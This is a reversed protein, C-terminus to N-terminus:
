NPISSPISSPVIITTPIPGTTISASQSCASNIQIAPLPDILIHQPINRLKCQKLVFSHQVDDFIKFYVELNEDFNQFNMAVFQCGSQMAPRPDYNASDPTLNPLIMTVYNKNVSIMDAPNQTKFTQERYLYFKDTSTMLNILPFLDSNYITSTQLQNKNDEVMIICKNCFQILPLTGFKQVDYNTYGYASGLLKNQFIDSLYKAILNITSSENTMIRLHLFLPDTPNPAGTNDGPINDGLAYLNIYWLVDMLPLSNFTEKIYFSNYLSQNEISTAVVPKYDESYIEFDLCRAGLRIAHQLACLDVFSNKFGGPSCCNYATKVYYSFLRGPGTPPPAFDSPSKAKYQYQRTYAVTNLGQQSSDYDTNLEGIPKIMNDTNSYISKLNSCENNQQQTIGYAWIIFIVVVLAIIIYIIIEVTSEGNDIYSGVQTIIGSSLEKIGKNLNELNKNVDVM